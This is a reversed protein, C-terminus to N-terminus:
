LEREIERIRRLKQQVTLKEEAWELKKRDDPGIVEAGLPQAIINLISVDRLIACFVPLAKIPMQRSIDQPNIWKEFTDLTLRSGNGGVLTVGYREALDNMREVLQERSYNSGKVLANMHEKLPRTINLTPFDFLTTQHPSM